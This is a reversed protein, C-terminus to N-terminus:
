SRPADTSESEPHPSGPPRALVYEANAEGRVIRIPELGHAKRCFTVVEDPTAPQYPWGGLWDRVDTTFAMGRQTSYTAIYRLSAYLGGLNKGRFFTTWVYRAEM